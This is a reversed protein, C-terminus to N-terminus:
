SELLPETMTEVETNLTEQSKEKLKRKLKAKLSGITELNDFYSWEEEKEKLRRTAGEGLSNLIDILRYIIKKEIKLNEIAEVMEKIHSLKLNKRGLLIPITEEKIKESETYRLVESLDDNSFRQISNDQCIREWALNAIKEHTSIILWVLDEKSLRRKFLEQLIEIQLEGETWDIAALLHDTSPKQNKLTRAAWERQTPVREIIEVLVYNPIDKTQSRYKRTVRELITKSEIERLITLFFSENLFGKEVGTIATKEKLRAIETQQLPSKVKVNELIAQLHKFTIGLNGQSIRLLIEKAAETADMGGRQVERLLDENNLRKMRELNKM